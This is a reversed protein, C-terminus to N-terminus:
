GGLVLDKTRVMHKKRFNANIRRVCKRHEAHPLLQSVVKLLGKLTIFFYYPLFKYLQINLSMIFMGQTPIYSIIVIENGGGLDLDDRVLEIFWCCNDKNKVTVMEWAIPYVHNDADRGIATLIEGKVHGKLFCEDLGIM